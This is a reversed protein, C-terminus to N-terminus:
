PIYQDKHNSSIKSVCSLLVGPHELALGSSFLSKESRLSREFHRSSVKNLFQSAPHDWFGNLFCATNFLHTAGPQTATLFM